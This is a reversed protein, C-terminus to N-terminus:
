LYRYNTKNKNPNLLWWKLTRKNVGIINALTSTSPYIQGTNIDIVKKTLKSEDGKATTKLGIEISHIINQQNTCWELNEIRNDTKVGNIHNIFPHNNPNPIFAQAILRHVYFFKRNYNKTLGVQLHGLNNAKNNVQKLIKGNLKNRVFSKVNGLNSIQYIGEYGTIDKFIETTM